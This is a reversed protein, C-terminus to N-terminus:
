TAVKACSNDIIQLSSGWVALYNGSYSYNLGYFVSGDIDAKIKSNQGTNVVYVEQSGDADFIYAVLNNSSNSAIFSQLDLGWTGFYLHYGPSLSLNEPSSNDLGVIFLDQKSETGGVYVLEWNDHQVPENMSFPTAVITPTSSISHQQTQTSLIYATSTISSTSASPTMSIQKIFFGSIALIGILGILGGLWIKISVSQKVLYPKAKTSLRHPKPQNRELDTIVEWMTQYRRKKDRTLMRNIIKVVRSPIEKRLSKINPPNTTLVKNMVAAGTDGGFPVEGTLMEFIVVGLSWIDAQADLHKGEWAEPAMYYPTGVQTGSRTMRTAENLRAVGFDALKPTGDDKLLINEPKIDRHIIGLKHSHILADCLGLAIHTAHKISLKGKKILDHLNGGSVYEMVIVYNEEYEFADLFEVINPHQLQQLTEGERKFRALLEHEIDLDSSIIKLAVERGNKIDAAKYVIGMAGKGLRSAIKYRNNLTQAIM